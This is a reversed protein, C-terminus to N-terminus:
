DNTHEGPQRSVWSSSQFLLTSVQVQGQGLRGQRVPDLDRADGQFSYDRGSLLELLALLMVLCVCLSSM